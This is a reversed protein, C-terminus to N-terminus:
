EALPITVYVLPQDGVVRCTHGQGTCDEDLIVDGPGFRRVTGDGLGAEVQGSLFVIYAPTSANHWDVFHGVPWRTFRVGTAGQLPTRERSGEWVFPLPLTEFHSQGDEGTYLRVTM